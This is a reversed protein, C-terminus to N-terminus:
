KLKSKSKWVGREVQLCLTGCKPCPGEAQIYGNGICKLEVADEEPEAHVNLQCWIHGQSMVWDVPKVILIFGQKDLLKALKTFM